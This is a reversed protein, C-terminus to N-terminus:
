GGSFVYHTANWVGFEYLLDLQYLPIRLQLISRRSCRAFAPQSNSRNTTFDIIQNHFRGSAPRPGPAQPKPGPAQPRPGPAQHRPGPAQPRPGPAQPRPGPAQPRTGPAQHRTGSWHKSPDLSGPCGFTLTSKLNQPQVILRDVSQYSSLSLLFADQM